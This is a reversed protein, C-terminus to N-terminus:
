LDNLSMMSSNCWDDLRRRIIHAHIPAAHTYTTDANTVAIRQHYGHCMKVKCGQGGWRTKKRRGVTGFPQAGYAQVARQACGKAAYVAKDAVVGGAGHPSQARHHRAKLRMQQLAFGFALAVGYEDASLIDPLVRQGRRYTLIVDADRRHQGARAPAAHELDNQARRQHRRSKHRTAHRQTCGAQRKGTQGSLHSEAYTHGQHQAADRLQEGLLGFANGADFRGIVACGVVEVPRDVHRRL